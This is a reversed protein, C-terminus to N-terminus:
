QDVSGTLFPNLIPVGAPEFDAANRTVVTLRHVIATAALLGDVVPLPQRPSLLAWCEAVHGDVPLIREAFRTRVEGTWADLTRAAREDRIRLLEAGRAIEGLTLVSLFLAGPDRSSVWRIVSQAPVPRRLESLVNTDILYGNV